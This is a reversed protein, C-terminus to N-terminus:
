PSVILYFRQTNTATVTPDTFGFSGSAGFVGNTLVPWNAPPAGLKNASLVRFPQGQSGTFTLQFSGGPLMTRGTFVPNGFVTVSATTTAPSYNTADAPTFTVSANTVGAVPVAGPSAFAFVGAVPANNAANTAAGGSLTSNALSQGCLIWSASPATLVPTAPNVTQGGALTNTSGIFYGAAAFVATIVHPSGSVPLSNNTISATANSGIGATVTVPSGLAAGDAEFQVTGAPVEGSAPFITATYTVNQGYISPNRSAAVTTTTSGNFQAAGIDYGGPQPVPTGYFDVSGTNVGFLAPLNLGAHILPSNPQLQYATLTDLLNPNNIAGGGGPNNLLPNINAGASSGNLMEQGAAARWATLSGCGAVNFSGGSSWYDNGQFLAQATTPSGNILIMNNSAVFLNNRVALGSMGSFGYFWVACTLNNYITNAYVQSNKLPAASGPCYFLLGAMKGGTGDNQGICYRLINNTWAGTVGDTCLLFGAGYNDHAYCYQIVSDSTNIDLDFGDGDQYKAQNHYSECYQITIQRSNYAWLGVPGGNNTGWGGNDHAVCHDMLGNVVDGFVFGSGSNNTKAPDGYNNNFQCGTVVVNSIAGVADAYTLGGADLNNQALCNQILVTNFGNTPAGSGGVLFGDYFNSVTLNSFTLGAYQGNDAHAEVGSSTTVNTGLGTIVLNQLTIYGTDYILVADEDADAQQIAARNTPDSTLTVPLGAAGGHGATIGNGPQFIVNESFTAGAQLFVTDGPSVKSVSRQVTKWANAPSTGAYADNGTPSVYYETAFAPLALFLFIRPLLKKM